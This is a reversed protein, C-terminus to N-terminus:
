NTSVGTTTTTEGFFMMLKEKSLSKIYPKYKTILFEYVCENTASENPDIHLYNYKFVCGFMRQEMIPVAEQPIPQTTFHFDTVKSDYQQNLCYDEGRLLVLGRIECM